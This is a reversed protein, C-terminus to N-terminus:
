KIVIFEINYFAFNSLDSVYIIGSANSFDGYILINTLRLDTMQIFISSTYFASNDKKM